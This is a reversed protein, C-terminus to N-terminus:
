LNHSGSESLLALSFAGQQLEEMQEPNAHPFIPRLQLLESSNQERHVEKIVKIFDARQIKRGDVGAKRFVDVMRLKKEHLLNQLTVLAQPYPACVLPVSGKKWPQSSKPPSCQFPNSFYGSIVTIRSRWARGHPM